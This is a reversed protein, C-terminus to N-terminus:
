LHSWKIFLLCRARGGIAHAACSALRSLSFRDVCVPLVCTFADVLPHHAPREMAWLFVITSHNVTAMPHCFLSMESLLVGYHANM